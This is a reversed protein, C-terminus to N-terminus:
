EESVVDIIVYECHGGTRIPYGWGAMGSTVVTQLNGTKRYGYNIENIGLIRMLQGTPWIQGAHTHGSVQLDIGQRNNEKLDGPQHDMLIRFSNEPADKMIEKLSKRDRDGADKRGIICIDKGTKFVEDELVRVGAKELTNRLYGSTYEPKERYQNSDHNGYVYFSGYTSKMYGLAKAAREMEERKTDEDFIDGTLLVLDPEQSQIKSCWNELDKASMTVGLHIDSMLAIRLTEEQQIKPTGIRYSTKKIQQMNIYGYSFVVAIILFSLIGSRYILDWKKFVFPTRKLLLNILELVLSVGVLHLVAVGGWGYAPWASFVCALALVASLVKVIRVDRKLFLSLIRRFFIYLYIGAPILILIPLIFFLLYM